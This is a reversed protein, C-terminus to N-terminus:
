IDYTVYQVTLLACLLQDKWIRNNFSEITNDSMEYMHYLMGITSGRLTRVDYLRQSDVIWVVAMGIVPISNVLM